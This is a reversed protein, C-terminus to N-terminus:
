QGGENRYAVCIEIIQRSIGEVEAHRGGTIEEIKLLDQYTDIIQRRKLNLKARIVYPEALPEALSDNLTIAEQITRLGDEQRGLGIESLARLSHATYDCCSVNIREWSTRVIGIAHGHIASEIQHYEPPM